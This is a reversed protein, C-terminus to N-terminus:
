RTSTSPEDEKGDRCKKSCFGARSWISELNSCPNGCRKCQKAPLSSMSQSKPNEGEQEFMYNERFRAILLPVIPAGWFGIYLVLRSIQPANISDPDNSGAKALLYVSSFLAGISLFITALWWAWKKRFCLGAIMPVYLALMILPGCNPRPSEPTFGLVAVLQVALVAIAFGASIPYRSQRPPNQKENIAEGKLQSHAANLSQL